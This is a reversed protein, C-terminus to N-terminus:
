FIQVDWDSLYQFLRTLDKNNVNGDGNVDLAAANVSVDWDSLYQFLRTLDKNNVAGDGNIDGPTHAGGALQLIIDKTVSSNTVTITYQADNHGEKMAKLTYTGVPVNEFYYGTELGTRTIEFAPNSEGEPILQLVVNRNADGLSKVTGSVSYKPTTGTCTFTAQVGHEFANCTGFLDASQGNITATVFTGDYKNWYFDYDPYSYVRVSVR